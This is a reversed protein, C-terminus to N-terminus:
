KPGRCALGTSSSWSPSRSSVAPSGARWGARASCPESRPWGRRGPYRGILDGLSPSDALRRAEAIGIAQELRARSIVAALDLLTRAVTTVPIESCTAVEDWPLPNERFRIGQRSRRRRQVTVEAQPHRLGTLQWLDGAARHSLAAGDGGVLVGAM